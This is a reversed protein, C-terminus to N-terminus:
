APRKGDGLAPWIRVAIVVLLAGAIAGALALPYARQIGDRITSLVALTAMAPIIVGPQYKLVLAHAAALVTGMTAGLILWSTLNEISLGAFLMGAIILLPWGRGKRALVYLVLSLLLTQIFFSNLPSLAAGAAPAWTSAAGFNGWAPSLSPLAQRALSAAGAMAAGLSAGIWLSQRAELSSGFERAGTVLGGILGLASAVFAASVLAAAAVIGIQLGLPQATSFQSAVAPLNNLTNTVAILFVVGFFVLFHRASFSQRRSWRIVALVAGALAIAVLAITCAAGAIAPLNRERRENRSWEEPVYVYRRADVVEDGAVAISIRPEGEPLGYDRTDSFVFTWDARAPRKSAEASIEKLDSQLPPRRGGLREYLAEVAIARAEDASLSKGPRAEPLSHSIRFAKGGGDVFVQYEEAREAVDGQFRAFRIFWRPPTLYTGLLQKYRDSGAKQWVFRDQEAPQGEVRGMVTWSTDLEIGGDALAQRAAREAESRSISIAPADTTLRSAGAWAILGLLGAM